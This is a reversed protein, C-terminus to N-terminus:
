GASACDATTGDKVQVGDAPCPQDHPPENELWNIMTIALAVATTELKVNVEIHDRGLQAVTVGGPFIMDPLLILGDNPGHKRLPFFGPRAMFSISGITPIGFYNVVLISEPIHFSKFRERSRAATLSKVGEPDVKGVIWEVETLVGEDILPTGQLAGVANLWVAVHRTEAPNMRTLALAVEAGSKSASVLVLRRGSQARARIAAAIIEANAEITGDDITEVFSCLFGVKTLAERPVAMDSGTFVLRKYLYTPVFLVEYNAAAEPLKVQGKPYAERAYDYAQDFARRFERNIPVRGIRDAMYLAAFDVSFEDSLKKLEDRNPLTGNGNQYLQDIRQDLTADVRKDALYNEVYYRAVESDVRSDIPQGEISGHVPLGACGVLALVAFLISTFSFLSHPLM